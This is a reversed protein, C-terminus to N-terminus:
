LSTLKGAFVTFQAADGHLLRVQFTGASTSYRHKLVTLAFSRIVPQTITFKAEGKLLTVSHLQETNLVALRAGHSLVIDTGDGLAVERLQHRDNAYVTGLTDSYTKEDDGFVLGPAYQHAYVMPALAMCLALAAAGARAALNREDTGQISGCKAFLVHCAEGTLLFLSRLMHSRGAFRNTPAFLSRRDNPDSQAWPAERAAWAVAQVIRTFTALWSIGAIRDRLLHLASSLAQELYWGFAAPASGSSLRLRYEEILDGVLADAAGRPALWSLIWATIKVMPTM